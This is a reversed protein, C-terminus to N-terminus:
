ITCSPVERTRLLLAEHISPRVKSDLRLYAPQGQRLSSGISPNKFMLGLRCPQYIVGKSNNKREKKGAGGKKGIIPIGEGGGGWRGGEGTKKKKKRGKRKLTPFGKRRPVVRKKKKQVGFVQSGIM